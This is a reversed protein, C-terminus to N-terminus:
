RVIKTAVPWIKRGAALGHAQAADEPKVKPPPLPPKKLRAGTRNQKPQLRWLPRNL